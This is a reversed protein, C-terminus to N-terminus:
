FKEEIAKLILHNADPFMYNKLDHFAVWRVVQGEQGSACGKFRKVWFVQLNVTNLTYRHEITLLPEVELVDIGVEEKLERVLTERTSEGEECKGGPFEWYGPMSQHPLRQSILTHTFPEDLDGKDSSGLIVGVAVKVSM